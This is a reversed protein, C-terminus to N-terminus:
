GTFNVGSNRDSGQKVSAPSFCDFCAEKLGQGSNLSGVFNNQTPSQVFATNETGPVEHKIVSSGTFVSDNSVIDTMDYRVLKEKQPRFVQDQMNQQLHQSVSKKDVPFLLM